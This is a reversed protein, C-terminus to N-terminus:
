LYQFFVLVSGTRLGRRMQQAHSYNFVWTSHDEKHEEGVCRGWCCFGGTACSVQWMLCVTQQGLCTSRFSGKPQEWSRKSWDQHPCPPCRHNKDNSHYAVTIQENLCSFCQWNKWGVKWHDKWQYLLKVDSYLWGLFAATLLSIGATCARWQQCWQDHQLASLKSVCRFFLGRNTALSILLTIQRTSCRSPISIHLLSPVSVLWPLM